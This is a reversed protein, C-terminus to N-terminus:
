GSVLTCGFKKGIVNSHVTGGGFTFGVVSSNVSGGGLTFTRNGFFIVIFFSGGWSMLIGCWGGTKGLSKIQGRLLEGHLLSVFRQVNAVCYSKGWCM